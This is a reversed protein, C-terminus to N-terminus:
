FGDARIQHAYTFAQANNGTENGTTRPSHDFTVDGLSNMPFIRFNAIASQGLDGETVRYRLFAQLRPQMVETLMIRPQSEYGPKM